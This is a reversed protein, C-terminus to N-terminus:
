LARVSSSNSSAKSTVSPRLKPETNQSYPNSFASAGVSRSKRVRSRHGSPAPRELREHQIVYDGDFCQYYSDASIKRSTACKHFPYLDDETRFPLYPAIMYRVSGDPSGGFRDIHGKLRPEVDLIIARLAEGEIFNDPLQDFPGDFYNNARINGEFAGILIKRELRWDRYFAFDTRKGIIVRDTFHSPVFEDTVLVTEDLLYHFIKLKTNYVLFFRIGSEDFIPGIFKEHPGVISAPPRVKSLDNLVFVVSKSGHSVRYVLHELKEVSVGQSADLVIHTVPSQEKWESLEEYYAFIVKGEDRNSADLRINGAFRRGNHIFSFYYYNETPYVKVRDPLSNLVFDFMAIPDHITLTTPRTVEEIYAQNTQLQPIGTNQPVAPVIAAALMALAYLLGIVSFARNAIQLPNRHRKVLHKNKLHRTLRRASKIM